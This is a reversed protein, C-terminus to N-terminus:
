FVGQGGFDRWSACSGTLEAQERQKGEAGQQDMSVVGVDFVGLDVNRADLLNDIRM